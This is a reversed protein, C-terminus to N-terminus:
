FLKNTCIYKLVLVHDLLHSPLTKELIVLQRISYPPEALHECPSKLYNM